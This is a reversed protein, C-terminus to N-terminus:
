FLFVFLVMIAGGDMLLAIRCPPSSAASHYGKKKEEFEQSSCSATMMFSLLLQDRHKEVLKGSVVVAETKQKEFNALHFVM